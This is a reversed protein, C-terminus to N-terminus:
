QPLLRAATAFRRFNSYEARGKGQGGAVFFEETMLKPLLLNLNKDRAFQVMLRGAEIAYLPHEDPPRLIIEVRWVSGNQPEIWASGQVALEAGDTGRVVTPRGTEMFTVKRTRIGAIRDVGALQLKFRTRHQPRLFELPVTPMNITRAPGLNHKASAIVIVRAQVSLNTTAEGLLDVLRTGEAEVPKGNSRRVDRVGFWVGDNPLRMFAVESELRRSRRTDITSASTSLRPNRPLRLEEQYFREDAVVTSVEQEYAPLYTDLAALLQVLEQENSQANATAIFLVGLGLAAIRM